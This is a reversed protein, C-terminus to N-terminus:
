SVRGHWTWAPRYRRLEALLDNAVQAHPIPGLRLSIGASILDIETGAPSRLVRAHVAGNDPLTRTRPFNWSRGATITIQRFRWRETRRVQIAVQRMAMIGGFTWFTLWALLFLVPPANGGRVDRPVVKFLLAYLSGAAFVEGVAWGCLWIMLFGAGGFRKVSRDRRVLLDFGGPVPVIQFARILEAPNSPTVEALAFPTATAGFGARDDDDHPITAAATPVTPFWMPKRRCLEREFDRALERTTFPGILFQRAGSTIGLVWRKGFQSLGARIDDSMPFEPEEGLADPFPSICSTGFTWVERGMTARWHARLVRLPVSLWLGVFGLIFPLCCILSGRSPRTTGGARVRPAAAFLPVLMGKVISWLFLVGLSAFFLLGAFVFLSAWGLQRRFFIRFNGGSADEFRFEAVAIQTSVHAKVDRM